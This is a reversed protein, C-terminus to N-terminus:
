IAKEVIDIKYGKRTNELWVRFTQSQKKRLVARQFAEEEAKFQDRAADRREKLKVLYLSDGAALPAEPCPHDPTLSFAAEKLAGASGIKPVVDGRRGFFGTDGLAIKEKSAVTEISEGQKLQALIRNARERALAKGKEGQLVREVEGRAEELAPIHQDQRKVVKLLFYRPPVKIVTSLTDKKLSLATDVLEKEVGLNTLLDHESALPTEKTQIGKQRAYGDLDKSRYLLSYAEKAEKEAFDEARERRLERVIEERAQDIPKVLPESIDEVKIIHFGYQTQIVPSVEGKGLSFAAEEFPKAMQGSQFYGLDGGNKATGIDESYKGALAAFDEGKKILRLIEEAKGRAQQLTEPTAPTATKILVHRAKVKKPESFRGPSSQYVTAVEQSSVVVKGEYNQPDFILYKMSVRPPIQFAQAHSEFYKKIEQESLDSMQVRPPEVKLFWLDIEQKEALYEDFVERESVKVMGKIAKELKSIIMENKMEDEFEEPTLRNYQLFRRYIERNFVGNEQFNQNGEITERLEEPGVGLSLKDAEKLLIARTILNELAMRRLNLKKIAEEPIGEPYLKQYMRILNNYSTQFEKQTIDYGNVSAVVGEKRGRLGGIGWSVFVVIVAFLAVKIFWSKANRRMLDLM